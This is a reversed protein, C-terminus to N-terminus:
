HNTRQPTKFMSSRQHTPRSILAGHEHRPAAPPPRACQTAPTHPTSPPPSFLRPSAPPPIPPRFFPTTLGRMRPPALTTSFVLTHPNSSPSISPPAPPFPSLPLYMSSYQEAQEALTHGDEDDGGEDGSRRRGEKAETVMREKNKEDIRELGCSLVTAKSWADHPRNNSSSLAPVSTTSTSLFLFLLPPPLPCPSLM